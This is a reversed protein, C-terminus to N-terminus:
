LNALSLWDLLTSGGVTLIPMLVAKLLPQRTYPAFAGVALRQVQDRMAELQGALKGNDAGRARLVAEGIRGLVQRRASEAASRLAMACALVIGFSIVALVVMSPPSYWDDFFASGAALMMSLAIFPLYILAGVCRTRKAIFQLDIWDDLHEAPLGTRQAFLQQTRAPWSLNRLRLARAFLVCLLTADAVFFILFQVVLAVPLNSWAQMTRTLEGRQPAVPAEGMALYILAGIAAMVAVCASTRLLRAAPRDLVLYHKWFAITSNSVPDAAGPRRPHQRFFRVAFMAALRAPRSREQEDQALAARVERRATGLRFDLAIRDLNTRLALWAGAILYLCLVLTLLRIAYSPWPSIGENISLPKGNRSIAEALTPWAWGLLAPLVVVLVLGLAVLAGIRLRRSAADTPALWRRLRRRLGRGVALAPVWLVSVVVLAVLFRASRSADPALPSGPPHISACEEIRWASCRSPAPEAAAAAPPRARTSDSFDFVGSRSVEFLRPSEFWGNLQAQTWRAPMSACAAADPACARAPRDASAADALALLTSFFASPQYSDRFPAFGRQLPEALRLGFNSAVILNRSWPLERNHLLRADLDTTFFIAHPMENQLAQLVLLKDYVDNGLVGIARIGYERGFMRRQRADEDRIRAALRRLYDYQSQGEARETFASQRGVRESLDPSPGKKAAPDADAKPDSGPVRGDLGRLYTWRTVCFGPRDAAPDYRFQRRLSRGYLTDWESVIAVSSPLHEPSAQAATTGDQQPCRAALGRTPRARLGRLELEHVLTMALRDDTGITRLLTVGHRQLYSSVSDAAGAKTGALLAADPATAAGSYFKLDHRKLLEALGSSAGARDAEEVIARLGDSSSPGLVRWRMAPAADQSDSPTVSSALLALRALPQQAYAASDLWLVMVRTGGRGGDQGRPGGASKFAEFAVLDSAQAEGQPPAAYFWGIHEGDSPIFGRAGLGALVAYRIRRRSESQESYPGGPVMVALVIAERSGGPDGPRPPEAGFLPPHRLRGDDAEKVGAKRAADRAKAIAEFPDQWLRADVDQAPEDWQMPLPAPVPRSSDLPARAVFFVGLALLAVAILGGAGSSKDDRDM